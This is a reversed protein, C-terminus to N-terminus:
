STKVVIKDSYDLDIYELTPMQTQLNGYIRALRDLKGAFDSRGLRVPVGRQAMFLTFGYGKDYHVESIDELSFLTREKLLDVLALMSKIAGKSGAPDKVLDEETVGTFVPFDLRDGETLPKFLEGKANLYYLYGMSAVAMPEQETVEIAITHPLYRRIRVNEIWPNRSLQEGMRGLRLRLLDDGPRIGALAIIEDRTLRKLPSVEIQELRFFSASGILSYAEFLILGALSALVLCVAGRSAKKLLGRINVKRRERKMRNQAVRIPKVRSTPNSPRRSAPVSM